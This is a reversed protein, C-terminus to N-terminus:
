GEVLQKLEAAEALTLTLEACRQFTRDASPAVFLYARVTDDTVVIDTVKLRFVSM